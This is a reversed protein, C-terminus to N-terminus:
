NIRFALLDSTIVASEATIVLPEVLKSTFSTHTRGRVDIRGDQNTDFADPRGDGTTDYGLVARAPSTRRRAPSTAPSAALSREVVALAQAEEM